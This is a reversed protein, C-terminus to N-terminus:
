EGALLKKAHRLCNSREETASWEMLKRLQPVMLIQTEVIKETTLNRDIHNGDDDFNEPKFSWRTDALLTESIGHEMMTRDTIYKYNKKMTELKKLIAETDVANLGFKKIAMNEFDRKSKIDRVFHYGTSM